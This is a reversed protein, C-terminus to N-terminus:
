GPESAAAPESADAPEIDLLRFQREPKPAPKACSAYTTEVTQAALRVRRRASGADLEVTWRDSANETADLVALRDPRRLTHATMLHGLAAQVPPPHGILGRLLDPVVEGRETADVVIEAGPVRGYLAGVAAAAPNPGFLALLNPAFRHGGTHSCEWVRGPRLAECAAALPRGLLACCVDRKSHACVLYVPEPDAVGASGDLPVELLEADAGYDGWSLGAAPNWVAWRRPSEDRAPLRPSEDRAPAPRRVALVRLGAASARQDLARAVASDFRSESLGAHGWPGPQEVLLVGPQVFATGLMPEDREASLVSCRVPTQVGVATEAGVADTM